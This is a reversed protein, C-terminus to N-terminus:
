FAPKGKRIWEKFSPPETQAAKQGHASIFKGLMRNYTSIESESFKPTPPEAKTAARSRGTPRGPVSPRMANDPSFTLVGGGGHTTSSSATEGSANSPQGAMEISLGNASGGAEESSASSDQPSEESSANTDSPTELEPIVPISLIKRESLQRPDALNSQPKTTQSVRATGSREAQTATSEVSKTTSDLGSAKQILAKAKSYNAASTSVNKLYDQAEAMKGANFAEEGLRFAADDFTAQQAADLGKQSLISMAFLSKYTSLLEKNQSSEQSIKVSKTDKIHDVKSYNSYGWYGLGAALAVIALVATADMLFVRPKPQTVGEKKNSTEKELLPSHLRKVTTATDSTTDTAPTASVLSATAMSETESSTQIAATEASEAPNASQPNEQPTRSVTQEVSPGTESQAPAVQIQDSSQQAGPFSDCHSAAIADTLEPACQLDASAEDGVASQQDKYRSFKREMAPTAFAKASAAAPDETLAPWEFKKNENPSFDFSNGRQAVVASNSASGDGPVLLGCEQCFRDDTQLETTCRRCILTLPM